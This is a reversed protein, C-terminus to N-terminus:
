FLRLIGEAQRYDVKNGTIISLFDSPIYLVGKVIGSPASLTYTRDGTRITSTGVRHTFQGLSSHMTINNASSSFNYQVNAASMVPRFPVMLVGNRTYFPTDTSFVVTAPCERPRPGGGAPPPLPVQSGPLMVRNNLLIGFRTGTPVIVDTGARGRDATAGYLWGAVAGILAGSIGESFISGIVLGTGAGYAIFRNRNAAVGARGSIGGTQPNIIVENPHLSVLSGSIPVVTGNPLVASVFTVEIQGPTRGSARTVSIIQGVFTTGGPFGGCNTTACNATFRDGARATASSLQSTNEVPVVTNEPITTQQAFTSTATVLLLALLIISIRANM